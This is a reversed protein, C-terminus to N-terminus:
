LFPAFGAGGLQDRLRNQLGMMGITDNLYSAYDTQRDPEKQSLMSEQISLMEAFDGGATSKTTELDGYDKVYLAEKDQSALVLPKGSRGNDQGIKQIANMSYPNGHISSIRYSGFGSFGAIASIRM